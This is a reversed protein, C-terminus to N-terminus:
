VEETYEEVEKDVAVYTVTIIGVDDVSKSDIELQQTESDYEPKDEVVVQWGEALLTAEDLLSYGSVTRGDSLTGTHPLGLHISDNIVKGYM